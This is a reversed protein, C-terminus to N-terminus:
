GRENRPLAFLALVSGLRLHDLVGGLNPRKGGRCVRLAVTCMAIALM